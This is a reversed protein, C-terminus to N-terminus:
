PRRTTRRDRNIPSTYRRRAASSGVAGLLVAARDDETLGRAEAVGTAPDAVTDRTLMVVPAGLVGGTRNLHEVALSASERLPPGYSALSGSLDVLQGIILPPEASPAPATTGAGGHACAALAFVAFALAALALLTRPRM